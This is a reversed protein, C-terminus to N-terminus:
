IIGYDNPQIFHVTDRQVITIEYHGKDRLKRCKRRAAHRLQYSYEKIKGTYINKARIICCFKEDIEYGGIKWDMFEDFSLGGDPFEFAESPTDHIAKWNNPYYKKPM